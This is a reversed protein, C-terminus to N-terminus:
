LVEPFYKALLGSLPELSECRFTYLGADDKMVIGNDVVEVPNGCESPFNDEGDLSWTVFPIWATHMGHERAPHLDGDYDNGIMIANEAPIGGLLEAYDAATKVSTVRVNEPPIWQHVGSRFFKRRQINYQSYHPRDHHIPEGRTLLCMKVDRDALATLTEKAHPMLQDSINYVTSGIRAATRAQEWEPVVGLLECMGVYALECAQPFIQHDFPSGEEMLGAFNQINELHLVQAMVSLALAPVYEKHANSFADLTLGLLANPPTVIMGDSVQTIRELVDKHERGDYLLTITDVFHTIADPADPDDDLRQKLTEAFANTFIGESYIKNQIKKALAVTDDAARGLQPSFAESMWVMFDAVTRAYYQRCPILTDDLDFVVAELGSSAMDKTFESEKLYITM